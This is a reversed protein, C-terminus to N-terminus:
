RGHEELLHNAVIVSSKVKMLADLAESDTAILNFPKIDSQGQNLYEALKLPEIKPLNYIDLKGQTKVQLIYANKGLSIAEYIGTSINVFVVLTAERLSQLFPRSDLTVNGQDPLTKYYSEAQRRYYPHPRIIVKYGADLHTNFKVVTDM